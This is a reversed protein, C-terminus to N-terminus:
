IFRIQQFILGPSMIRSSSIEHIPDFIDNAHATPKEIAAQQTPEFMAGQLPVQIVSM